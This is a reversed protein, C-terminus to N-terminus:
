QCQWISAGEMILHTYLAAEGALICSQAVDKSVCIGASTVTHVCVMALSLPLAEPAWKPPPLQEGPNRDQGQSALAGLVVECVPFRLNVSGWPSWVSLLLCAAPGAQIGLGGRVSTLISGVAAQERPRQGPVRSVITVWLQGWRM